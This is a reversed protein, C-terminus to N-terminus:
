EHDIEEMKLYYNLVEEGISKFNKVDLKTKLEEALKRKVYFAIRVYDDKTLLKEYDLDPPIFKSESTLGELHRM